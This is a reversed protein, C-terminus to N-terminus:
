YQWVFLEHFNLGHDQHTGQSNFANVFVDLLGSVLTCLRDIRLAINFLLDNLIATPSICEGTGLWIALLSRFLTPCQNDHRLCDLGEICDLLCGPNEDASLFRAATCLGNCAVRLAGVVLGAQCSHPTRCNGKMLSLVRHQNVFFFVTCLKLSHLHSM